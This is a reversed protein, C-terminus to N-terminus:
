RMLTVSGKKEYTAGDKGEAKIIYFYTGAACEMGAFNKGDWAINGTNSNVDYVKNGWRDFIVAEIKTLNSAKVFFIDNSNDGNPTFINPIELKSPIDVKIIKFTSDICEGKSSILLVTYTGPNAYTAGTAVSSSISASYTGNGFSWNSIVNSSANLTGASASTNNFYVTLPAYGSEASANMSANIFGPLVNLSAFEYCGTVNNTVVYEYTGAKDVVVTPSIVGPSCTGGVPPTIFSLPSFSTGAPYNKYLVSWASLSNSLVVRIPVGVVSASVACDLTYNQSPAIVPKTYDGNITVVSTSICGNFNGQTILTSTNPVVIDPVIVSVVGPGGLTYLTSTGVPVVFTNTASIVNATNTGVYVLSVNIGVTNTKCSFFNPTSLNTVMRPLLFNQDIGVTQTSRCSNVTNTVVVTYVGYASACNTCTSPGFGTAGINISAGTTTNPPPVPYNWVVNTNQTTSSGVAMFSPTHCMLTNTPMTYQVHPQVTNAIVYVPLSTQCGSVVDRLVLNWQGTISTTLCSAGPSGSFSGSPVSTTMTPGPYFCFDVSGNASNPSGFCLTTTHSPACGVTFNTNSTPIFTPFTTTTVVTVTKSQTCGNVTNSFTAVHTGPGLAQISITNIYVPGPIIGVTTTTFWQIQMNSTPTIVSATFTPANSSCNITVSAPSVTGTPATTNMAIALTQTATCTNSPHTVIVTYTGVTGTCVSQANSTFTAGSNTWFYSCNAPTTQATMCVSPSACTISFSGTTNLVTLTPATMDIMTISTTATCGGQATITANYTGSPVNAATYQTNSIIGAPTPSWSITYTPVPTPPLFNLNLNFANNPNTCTAQTLSPAVTPKPYVTVIATATQTITSGSTNQGTVSVVYTTTVAPSVTFSPNTSTGSGPNISYVPSTLNSSNSATIVATSGACITSSSALISCNTSGSGGIQNFIINQAINAYNTILVMYFSGTPASVINCTETPSSSYSCDVINGATLNACAASLNPFPGWCIFDVDAGGSGAIYLDLNGPSSIQLYYWAPNPQSGLCGYAPGVPAPPGNVTAPFTVGSTGGACFPAASACSTQAQISLGLFILLIVLFKKM